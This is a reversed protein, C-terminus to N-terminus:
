MPEEAFVGNVGSLCCTGDMLVIREVRRGKIHGTYFRVKL